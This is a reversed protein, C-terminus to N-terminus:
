GQLLVNRMAVAHGRCPWPLVLQELAPAAGPTGQKLEGAILMGSVMM